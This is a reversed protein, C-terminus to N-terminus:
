RKERDSQDAEGVAAANSVLVVTVNDDGGAELAAEVLAGAKHELGGDAAAIRHLEERSVLGSLGDSCLLLMDGPNWAVDQIDIEIAAETGLARTLVNRRPHHGAEERTIQGSKVLENVLSHDETLQEIGEENLRYARSDGIHGIVVSQEDALVAVVTTGMGRYSEREAAFSFIKENAHEVAMKLRRKREEMSAGAPIPQLESQIIDAAMQSAVDGAQHGGMGDAVIALLFGNLDEQVVARDENVMRIRGVDTHSATKIM